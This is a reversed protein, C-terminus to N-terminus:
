LNGDKVEKTETTENKTIVVEDKKKRKTTTKKTTSKKATTKKPKEETREVVEKLAKVEMTQENVGEKDSIMEEIKAIKTKIEQEIKKDEAKTDIAETKSVVKKSALVPTDKPLEEPKKDEVKTSQIGYMPSLVKNAKQTSKTTTKPTKPMPKNLNGYIPSIIDRQEYPETIIVPETKKKKKPKPPDILIKVEAKPEEKVEVPKEKIEERVINEVTKKVEEVPERKVFTADEVFEDTFLLRIFKEKLDKFSM